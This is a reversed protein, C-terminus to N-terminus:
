LVYLMIVFISIRWLDFGIDALIYLKIKIAPKEIKNEFAISIPSTATITGKDAIAISRQPNHVQTIGYKKYVSESLLRGTPVAADSPITSGIAAVKNLM